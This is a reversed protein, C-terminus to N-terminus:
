QELHGPTSVDIRQNLILNRYEAERAPMRWGRQPVYRVSSEGAPNDGRRISRSGHPCYLVTHPDHGAQADDILITHNRSCFYHSGNM